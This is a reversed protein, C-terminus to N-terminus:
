VSSVPHGRGPLQVRSRIARPASRVLADNAMRSLRVREYRYPRRAGLLTLQERAFRYIPREHTTGHIRLDAVEASWRELWHNLEDWSGFGDM